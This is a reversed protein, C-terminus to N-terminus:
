HLHYLAAREKYGHKTMISSFPSTNESLSPFKNQLMQVRFAFSYIHCLNAGLLILVILFTHNNNCVNVFVVVVVVVFALWSANIKNFSLVLM